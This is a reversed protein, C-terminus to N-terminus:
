KTEYETANKRRPNLTNQENCSDAGNTGRILLLMDISHKCYHPRLRLRCAAGHVCRDALEEDFMVVCIRKQNDTAIRADSLKNSQKAIMAGPSACRMTNNQTRNQRLKNNCNRDLPRRKPRACPQRSQATPIRGSSLSTRCTRSARERRRCIREQINTEKSNNKTKRSIANM